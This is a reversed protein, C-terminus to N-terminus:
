VKSEIEVLAVVSHARRRPAKRSRARRGPVVQPPAQSVTDGTAEYHLWAFEGCQVTDEMGVSSLRGRSSPRHRDDGNAEYHVWPGVSLM